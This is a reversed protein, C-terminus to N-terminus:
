DELTMALIEGTLEAFSIGAAAAAMPVLSHSTMGPATNVELLYFKGATDQMVDVRGWHRGGVRKFAAQALEGLEAEKDASLGCPCLYRTDDSIYKANFDYFSHDTELRIAPLAREGLIAVTFEAGEIWREVLVESDYHKAATIAAALDAATEVRSMGISSGENAPKVMVPLGLSQLTAADTGAVLFAPTPLGAGQWLWKCRLKDMGIASAMVGSGTYPMHLWELLGQITGDEGGPGHLILFARDFARLTDATVGTADVLQADVGMELLGALVAEGSQLSIARESSDGGALVAVRGAHALRQRLTKLDAM